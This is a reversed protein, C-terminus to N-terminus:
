YSRATTETCYFLPSLVKMKGTKKRGGLEPPKIQLFVTDSVFLIQVAASPHYKKKKKQCGRFGSIILLQAFIHQM